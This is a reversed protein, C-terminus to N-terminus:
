EGVNLEEHTVSFTTEDLGILGIFFDEYPVQVTMRVLPLLPGGILGNTAAVCDVEVEFDSSANDYAALISTGTSVTGRASVETVRM